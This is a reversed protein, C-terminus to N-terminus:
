RPVTEEDARGSNAAFAPSAIASGRSLTLRVQPRFLLEPGGRDWPVDDIMATLRRITPGFSDERDEDADGLIVASPRVSERSLGPAEATGFCRRLSVM